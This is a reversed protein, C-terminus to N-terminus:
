FNVGFPHVKRRGAGKGVQKYFREAWDIYSRVNTVFDQWVEDRGGQLLPQPNGLSAANLVLTDIYVGVDELGSWLSATSDLDVVDCVLGESVTPSNIKEAEEALRAVAFKVSDARRAVVIVRKAKAAVFARAISFGIGSNGGTILITRGEQSLEPRTPSIAPYPKKHLTQLGSLAM